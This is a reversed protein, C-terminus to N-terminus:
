DVYHCYSTGDRYKDIDSPSVGGMKNLNKKCELFPPAAATMNIMAGGVMGAGGGGPGAGMQHPIGDPVGGLSNSGAHRQHVTFTGLKSCWPLGKITKLKQM